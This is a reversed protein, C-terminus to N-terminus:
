EDSSGIDRTGFVAELLQANSKRRAAPGEMTWYQLRLLNRQQQADLFTLPEEMLATTAEPSLVIVHSSFRAWSRSLRVRARGSSELRVLGKLRIGCNLTGYSLLTFAYTHGGLVERNEGSLSITLHDNEYGEVPVEILYGREILDERGLGLLRYHWLDGEWMRDWLLSRFWPNFARKIEPRSQPHSYLRPFCNIGVHLCYAHPAEPTCSANEFVERFVGPSEGRSMDDLWAYAYHTDTVFDPRVPDIYFDAEPTEILLTLDMLENVTWEPPLQESSLSTIIQNLLWMQYGKLFPPERQSVPERITRATLIRRTLNLEDIGGRLPYHRIGDGLDFPVRSSAVSLEFYIDEDALSDFEGQQIKRTIWPEVYFRWINDIEGGSVIGQRRCFSRFEDRAITVSVPANTGSIDLTGNAVAWKIYACFGRFIEGRGSEPYKILANDLGHFLGHYLAVPCLNTNTLRTVTPFPGFPPQGEPFVEGM